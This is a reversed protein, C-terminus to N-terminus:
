AIGLDYEGTSLREDIRKALKAVISKAGWLTVDGYDEVCLRVRRDEVRFYLNEIDIALEVRGSELQMAGFEKLTDLAAKVVDKGPWVGLVIRRHGVLALLSDVFLLASGHAANWLSRMVLKSLCPAASVDFMFGSRSRATAQPPEVVNDENRLGGIVKIGM